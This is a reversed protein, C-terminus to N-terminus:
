VFTSFTGLDDMEGASHKVDLAKVHDFTFGPQVALDSLCEGVSSTRLWLQRFVLVLPM